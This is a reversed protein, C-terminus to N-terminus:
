LDRSVLTNRGQKKAEYLAEDAISTLSDLSVGEFSKITVVGMSLTVEKNKLDDKFQNRVKDCLELAQALSQNALLVAFEDGGTRYVSDNARRAISKLALAVTILFKDGFPHGYCDNISKFNDVDVLVLTLSYNNRKARNFENALMSTFHRRNFLGTLSDTISMVKIEKLSVQLKKNSNLVDQILRDKEKSLKLTRKLLQANIQATIIIMIVFMLCMMGLIVDNFHLFSVYYVILPLFMPLVYAYFAPLFVSLSATAGAAMGGLVFIITQSELSSLYPMFLFYCTGWLAGTFGALLTFLYSQKILKVQLTKNNLVLTSHMWRIISLLFIAGVWSVVLKFPAGHYYLLGSLLLALIVNFPISELSSQFLLFLEDKTIKQITM